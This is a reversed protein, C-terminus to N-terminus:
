ELRKEYCLCLPDERFDGFPPIRHFGVAEYLRIAAQQHIGTELRLLSIGNELAQATLHDLMRRGLGLGRVSPRVYMRKVEAYETGHFKIGGCGVAVEEQRLVFFAVGDAMLKEVSFGNRSEPPYLANLYDDLEAILTLAEASDPRESTIITAM